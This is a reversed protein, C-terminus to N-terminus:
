TREMLLGVRSAWCWYGFAMTVAAATDNAYAVWVSLADAIRLPALSAVLDVVAFAPMMVACWRMMVRVRTPFPTDPEYVSLLWLSVSCLVSYAVFNISELMIALHMDVRDILGIGPTNNFIAVMEITMLLTWLQELAALVGAGVMAMLGVRVTRRFAPASASLPAGLSWPEAAGCEPCPSGPELGANDYGCRLCPPHPTDSASPAETM